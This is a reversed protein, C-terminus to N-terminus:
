TPDKPGDPKEAKAGAKERPAAEKEGRDRLRYSRGTIAIIEAHHLFRDLM